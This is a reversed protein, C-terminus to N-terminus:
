ALRELADLATDLAERARRGACALLGAGAEDGAERAAAAERHADLVAATLRELVRGIVQRPPLVLTGSDHRKAARMTGSTPSASETRRNFQVVNGDNVGM